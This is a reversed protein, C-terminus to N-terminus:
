PIGCGQELRNLRVNGKHSKDSLFNVQGLAYFIGCAWTQLKGKSLLSPRNRYLAASAFRAPESYEENLHERCFDDTIATIAAYTEGFAKPVKISKIASM